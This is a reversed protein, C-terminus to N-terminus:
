RRFRGFLGFLIMEFVIEFDKPHEKIAVIKCVSMM